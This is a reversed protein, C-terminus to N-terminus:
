KPLQPSKVMNVFPRGHIKDWALQILGVSVCEMERLHIKINDM